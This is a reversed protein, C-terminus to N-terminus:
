RMVRSPRMARLITPWCSQVLGSIVEARSARRRELQLTKPTKRPAPKGQSEFPKWTADEGSDDRAGKKPARSRSKTVEQGVVQSNDNQAFHGRENRPGSAPGRPRSTL